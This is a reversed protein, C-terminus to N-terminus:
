TLWANAVRLAALGAMGTLGASPNQNQVIALWTGVDTPTTRDAPAGFAGAYIGPSVAGPDIPAPTGTVVGYYYNWQDMNLNNVDQGASAAANSMQVSVALAAAAPTIPAVTAVPVAPSTLTITAPTTPTPASILPTSVAAPISSAILASATSGSPSAAPTAAPTTAPIATGFLSPFWQQLYGGKWILYVGVGGVAVLVVYKVNNDM